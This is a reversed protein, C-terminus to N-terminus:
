HFYKRENNEHFVKWINSEFLAKLEEKTYEKKMNNRREEEALISKEPPINNDREIIEIDEVTM